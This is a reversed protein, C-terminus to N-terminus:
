DEKQIEQLSEISLDGQSPVGEVKIDDGVAEQLKKQEADYKEREQKIRERARIEYEKYEPELKECAISYFMKDHWAKWSRASLEQNEIDLKMKENQARMLKNQELAFQTQYKTNEIAQKRMKEKELFDPKKEVTAEKELVATTSM